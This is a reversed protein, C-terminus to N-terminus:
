NAGWPAEFLDQELQLGSPATMRLKSLQGMQAKKLKSRVSCGQQRVRLELALELELVACRLELELELV